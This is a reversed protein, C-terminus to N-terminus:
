TACAEHLPASSTKGTGLKWEGDEKVMPYVVNWHICDVPLMDPADEPAQTSTFTLLVVAETEGGLEIRYIVITGDKSTAFDRLWTERNMTEVREDSVVQRWLDYDKANIAEFNTQLVSRFDQYLPHSVAEETGEVTAPGPQEAKPLSTPAPTVASPAAAPQEEYVQRALLGGVATVIVALLLVPLLWPQRPKPSPSSGTPV